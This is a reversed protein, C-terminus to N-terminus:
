WGWALAADDPSGVLPRPAERDLRSALAHLERAAALAAPMGSGGWPDDRAGCRRPAPVPVPEAPEAPEAPRRLAELLARRRATAAGDAFRAYRYHLNDNLLVAVRDATCAALQKALDDRWGRPLADGRAGLTLLALDVVPWGLPDRLRRDVAALELESAFLAGDCVAAAAAEARGAGAPRRKLVRLLPFWASLGEGRRAREAPEAREAEDVAAQLEVLADMSARAQPDLRLREAAFARLLPVAADEDEPAADELGLADLAEPLERAVQWLCRYFCHGDAAVDCVVPPLLARPEGGEGGEGDM